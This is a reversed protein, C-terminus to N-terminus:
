GEAFVRPASALTFLAWLVGLVVPVPGVHDIEVIGVVILLAALVLFLGVM